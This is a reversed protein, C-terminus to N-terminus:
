LMLIIQLGERENKGMKSKKTQRERGNKVGEERQDQVLKYMVHIYRSALQAVSKGRRKVGERREGEPCAWPPYYASTRASKGVPQALLTCACCLIVLENHM